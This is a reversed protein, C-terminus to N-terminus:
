NDIVCGECHDPNGDKGGPLKKKGKKPHGATMTGALNIVYPYPKTTSSPPNQLTCTITYPTSTSQSTLTSSTGTCPNKKTFTITFNVQATWTIGPNPSTGVTHVEWSGKAPGLDSDSGDITANLAVGLTPPPPCKAAPAVDSKCGALAFLVSFAVFVRIRYVQMNEGKRFQRSNRVRYSLDSPPPV